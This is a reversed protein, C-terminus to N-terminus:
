QTKWDKVVWSGKKEQKIDTRSCKLERALIDLVKPGCYGGQCRGGGPRVRRKVGNLTTAGCNRHIADVIEGESISECRCIIHGLTPMKEIWQSQVKPTQHMLHIRARREKIYHSKISLEYGERVSISKVIEEVFEAIAPASSLGPSKIGAVNIFRSINTEEIIFDGTSPEARVGSFNAITMNMPCTPVMYLAKTKVENLGEFTTATADKTVVESNPGIIVNGHATPAIITGKGKATPCTFLMQNVLGSVVKDLIFYEGRRPIMEFGISESGKVLQYISDAHGGACNIIGKTLIEANILFCDGERQIDIVKYNLNLVVGNDMANECAAIAVEWPETIGASPAYLAFEYAKNVNPEIRCITTRDIIQLDPVGLKKGNEYLSNIAKFDEDGEGLVLSGIREFTFNLTESLPGYLANGRVNLKGMLSDYPADYGAHILASNAKTAGCAVDSEAELILLKLDYKALAHAILTGSVGAGIITWDYM